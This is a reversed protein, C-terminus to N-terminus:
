IAKLVLGYGIAAGSFAGRLYDEKATQSYLFAAKVLVGTQPLKGRHWVRGSRAFFIEREVVIDPPKRACESSHDTPEFTVLRERDDLAQTDGSAAPPVAVFVRRGKVPQESQDVSEADRLARHRGAREREKKQQDVGGFLRM